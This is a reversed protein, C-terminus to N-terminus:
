IGIRNLPPPPSSERGSYGQSGGTFEGKRYFRDDRMSISGPEQGRLSLFANNWKIM